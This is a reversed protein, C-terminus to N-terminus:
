ESYGVPAFFFYYPWKRFPVTGFRVRNNLLHLALSSYQTPQCVYALVAILTKIKEVRDELGSVFCRVLNKQEANRSNHLQLVISLGM